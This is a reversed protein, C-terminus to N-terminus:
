PSGEGSRRDRVSDMIRRYLVSRTGEMGADLIEARGAGVLDLVDRLISRRVVLLCRLSPEKLRASLAPWIGEGRVELPGVEDVILFDEKDCDLIKQQARELASPLIFYPGTKPWGEEGTKRLFPMAAETKLDFIDYGITEGAVVVALSLFGDVRFGEKKLEPVVKKLLGTKGSHVPGTLLWIMTGFYFLRVLLDFFSKNPVTRL